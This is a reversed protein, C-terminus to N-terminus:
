LIQEFITNRISLFPLSTLIGNKNNPSFSITSLSDCSQEISPNEENKLFYYVIKKSSISSAKEVLIIIREFVLL